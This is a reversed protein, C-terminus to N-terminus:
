YRNKPLSAKLYAALQRLQFLPINNMSVVKGDKDVMDIFLESGGECPNEDARFVVKSVEPTEVNLLIEFKTM